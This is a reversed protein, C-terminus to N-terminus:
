ELYRAIRFGLDARGETGQGRWSLRLESVGSHTWSSGRIVHADGSDPGTPDRLTMGQVPLGIDYIDHMWESVNGGMDYLGHANPPFSGVPATVPHNDKYSKLVAGVLERASSDAYNGANAPPPMQAGWPFKLMGADPQRRAAWAWEAETPLRYGNAAKDAGTVSGQSVRYFPRLGDRASLWNCYRAAEEWSVKVVPQAAGDLSHPGERGSSHSPLFAKFEANTVEKVSLYFPRSLAVDREVENARRGPERRPAGMTFVGEPRFLKMQQGAGTTLVDRISAERAQAQTVMRAQVRQQVGPRPTVTTKYPVYGERRLEITHPRAPLRLIQVSKGRPKGDVFLEADEPLSLVMVEGIEAPLSLKVTQEGRAVKHRSAAKKHGPKYAQIQVTEGPRASLSFPSLGRFEGDVTINAGAPETVVRVTADALPLSVTGLDQPEGATVSLKRRWSKHGPLNLELQREGELIDTSLPTEGVAEGDVTLTAGAPESALTLAAWAPELTIAVEDVLGRGQVTVQQEAPRYRPAEARLTYEGAELDSITLPATGRSEGDLAISVAEAPGATVALDGPLPRLAFSHRQDHETTVTLTEQLPRYGEAQARVRYQGPRALWRGGLRVLLGGDLQVQASAPTVEVTVSRSTVVFLAVLGLAVLLLASLVVGIRIGVRGAPGRRTPPEFRTPRILGDDNGDPRGDTAPSDTM